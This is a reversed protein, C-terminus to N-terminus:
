DKKADAEPKPGVASAIIQEQEIKHVRKSGVAPSAASPRGIYRPREIGLHTQMQDSIFLFGAMNRPEEQVWFVEADKPYRALIERALEAHFPYLQEIRVIATDDRGIADRREALEHYIKGCCFLIRKVKARDANRDTFAPDDMINQFHGQTLDGVKGTPIRLMSKPTFVILPKRFPRKLQRRFMHFCQGATTPYVVQMNNGGCLKLFREIRGSSHEPGQGEYGHPLLLTLGSWREWKAEATAIFQDIIVQAGNVFDGFQAEWMVLMNPDALSYGYEFGVVAQESLPSDYVCLRAQRPKGDSGPSGAPTETGPEGLDRMHNLPTYPKGTETDYVVAHRHSFTGRRSDQGSLRLPHGELLLTGFALAEADAYSLEDSEFLKSRSEFLPQLKKNLEFDDPVKGLAEAVERLAEATVATHGPEFTFGGGLGQWRASGPDITPDHPSAKAMAQAQELAEDLRFRIAEVDAQNIVQQDLLDKSYLELVGKRQKILKALIPQTFSQEDQENHGYKRYCQLDIFVDARFEQRYEMAMQAVSVVAEPDEGNVHFIPADIFKGIDTCYRSTRGDKPSTTFGIQNNVVVHVTGGTTYGELQSFNLVEQVIGQGAIAADGHIVVPVVRTRETDARLRQKARCRGTVVADVAELHSPNSAMALHLMKGSPFRRTGSYGRHYKVDGGGDEFDDVWTEEFETFIQQYSKGLTNNLVNLRGRHAMGLVIEEVGLGSASELLRDLLPILSESGELSFRKEGPYRKGLFREFLAAKTLLELLHARERRDLAIRGGVREFREFVWGRREENQIHAAELGIAGCYTSELRDIVARLEADNGLGLGEADVSRHLDADSLNHYDLSLTEPREGHRGFPDLSASLHGHARYCGILDDVVAQFHSARGAVQGRGPTIRARDMSSPQASVAHGAAGNVKSAGNTATAPAPVPAAAPAAPANPVGAGGAATSLRLEGAMALDFGAFFMRMDESLSAPDSRYLQYQREIYDASWGNVSHPIARPATTM